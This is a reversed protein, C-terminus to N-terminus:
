FSFNYNIMFTNDDIIIENDFMSFPVQENNELVFSSYVGEEDAWINIDVIKETNFVTHLGIRKNREIQKVFKPNGSAFQKNTVGNHAKKTVFYPATIVRQKVMYKINKGIFYEKLINSILM